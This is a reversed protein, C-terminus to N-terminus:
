VKESAFHGEQASARAKRCPSWALVKGNGPRPVMCHSKRNHTIESYLWNLLYVSVLSSPLGSPSTYSPKSPLPDNVLWSEWMGKLPDILTQEHLCIPDFTKNIDGIEGCYQTRPVTMPVSEPGGQLATSFIFSESSAFAGVSGCVGLMGTVM